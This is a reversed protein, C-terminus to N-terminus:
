HKGNKFHHGSSGSITEWRFYVNYLDFLKFCILWDEVSIHRKCISYETNAELREYQLVM